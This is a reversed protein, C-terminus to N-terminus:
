SRRGTSNRRGDDVHRRVRERLADCREAPWQSRLEYRRASCEAMGHETLPVSRRAQEARFQEWAKHGRMAETM